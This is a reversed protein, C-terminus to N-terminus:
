QAAKKNKRTNTVYYTAAAGVAAAGLLLLVGTPGIVMTKEVLDNATVAVDDVAQEVQQKKRKWFKM